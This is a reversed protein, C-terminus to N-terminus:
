RIRIKKAKTTKKKGHGTQVAKVKKTGSSLTKSKISWTGNSRVKASGLKKGTSSKLTIKAGPYGIGKITPRHTKFKKSSTKIVPKASVVRFTSVASAASGTGGAPTQTAAVSYSKLKLKRSKVAFAGASNVTGKALVTGSTTRVVVYAGPTGTGRITPRVSSFYRTSRISPAPNLAANVNDVTGGTGPGNGGGASQLVGVVQNVLGTLVSPDLANGGPLSTLLGSVAGPLAAPDNSALATLIQDVLSQVQAPDPTQGGAGLLGTVLDQVTTVLDTIVSPSLDTGTLGLGSLIQALVAPDLGSGELQTAIADAVAQQDGAPVGTLTAVIADVLSEVSTQIAAPTGDPVTGLLDELAADVGHLLPGTVEAGCLAPLLDCLDLPLPAAALRNATMPTPSAQAPGTALGLGGAILAAALGGSLTKIM